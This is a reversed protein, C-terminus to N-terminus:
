EVAFYLDSTRSKTQSNASECREISNHSPTPSSGLSGLSGLRAENEDERDGVIIEAGREEQLPYADKLDSWWRVLSIVDPEPQSSGGDIELPNRKDVSVDLKLRRQLENLEFLLERLLMTLMISTSGSSIM